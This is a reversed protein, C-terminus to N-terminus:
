LKKKETPIWVFNKAFFSTTLNNEERIFPSFAQIYTEGNQPQIDVRPNEINVNWDAPM